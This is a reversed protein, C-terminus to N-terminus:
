VYLGEQAKRRAWATRMSESLKQRTEETFHKDYDWAVSLRRKTEASRKKGRNSDAARRIKLEPDKWNYHIGRHSESIRKRTIESRKKGRNSNSIAQKSETTHHKGLMGLSAEGGSAYYRRLGTSIAAKQDAPLKKGIYLRRYHAKQQETIPRGKRGKLAKRIKEKATNPMKWGLNSAAAPSVNYGSEKCYSKYFDMWHQERGVMESLDCSELVESTFNDAGYKDWSKQLISNGHKSKKLANFHENLRGQINKSHGVYRKGNVLNVISYVGAKM